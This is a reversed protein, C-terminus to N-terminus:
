HHYQASTAKPLELMFTTHEDEIYKFDGGHRQAIGKVLSLGLGSGKNTKTTYFLNLMKGRIEAPIGPGSDKVYIRVNDNTKETSIEIWKEEINVIADFSNSILNLLAQEFQGRHGSVYVNKTNKLRLEIGHKKLREGFFVLVNNLIETFPIYEETEEDNRYIYERVIKIISAIREANSKIQDLGKELESKNNETLDMRTLKTVRGLIVTLPTSIEHTLGASMLGLETFKGRNFFEEDTLGNIKKLQAKLKELEKSKRFLGLALSAILIFSVAYIIIQYNEM